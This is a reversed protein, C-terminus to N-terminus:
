HGSPTCVAATEVVTVVGQAASVRGQVSVNLVSGKAAGAHQSCLLPSKGALPM